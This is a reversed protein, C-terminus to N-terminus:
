PNIIDDQHNIIRNAPETESHIGKASDFLLKEKDWHNAVVEEHLL